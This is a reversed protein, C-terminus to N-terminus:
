QYFTATSMSHERCLISVPVGGEAQKLIAMIQLENYKSTKMDIKEDILVLFFKVKFSWM